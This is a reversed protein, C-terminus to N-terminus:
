LLLGIKVRIDEKDVVVVDDKKMVISGEKRMMVVDKEDDKLTVLGEGMMVEDDKTLGVGEKM